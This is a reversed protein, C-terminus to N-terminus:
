VMYVAVKMIYHHHMNIKREINCISCSVGKIMLQIVFNYM